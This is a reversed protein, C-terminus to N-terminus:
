KASAPAQIQIVTSEPADGVVELHAPGTIFVTDKEGAPYTGSKDKVTLGGKWVFLVQEGGEPVDTVFHQAHKLKRHAGAAQMSGMAANTFFGDKDAFNVTKV